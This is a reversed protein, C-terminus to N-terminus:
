GGALDVLALLAANESGEPWAAAMTVEPLGPEVPRLVIGERKWGSTSAPV